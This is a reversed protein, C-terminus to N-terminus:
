IKESWGPKRKELFARMGEQAEKGTRLEALMESTFKEADDIDMGPVKEFLVKCLELAKKGSNRFSDALIVAEDILLDSKVIKNVLGAKFAQQPTFREGTLFFEKLKGPAAKMFLYPSIVSPILGIRVESLGFNANESSLVIDSVAVFGMGGGIANGNVASIVPVKLRYISKFMEALNKSDQLNEEFSNNIMESMWNIDAGASFSRGRGTFLVSRIWSENKIRDIVESIEGIMEPNFANHIKPRNFYIILTTDKEEIQITKFTKQWNM